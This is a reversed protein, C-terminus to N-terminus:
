NYDWIDFGVVARADTENAYIGSMLDDVFTYFIAGFIYDNTAKNVVGIIKDNYQIPLNIVDEEKLKYKNRWFVNLGNKPNFDLKENM